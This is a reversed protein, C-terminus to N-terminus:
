LAGLVTLAVFALVAVVFLPSTALVGLRQWVTLMSRRPLSRFLDSGRVFLILLSVAGVVGIVLFVMSVYLSQTEALMGFSFYELLVSMANNAFHVAVPIWINETMVYLWGLLIGVLLAFPIQLINGHMLSFLLASIMVAFWDGYPRFARLVYGRFVMEELLAPLVAIALLNLLLSEPTNELLQPSMPRSWGQEELFYSVYTAIYNAAICGGMAGLIGFFADGAVVRNAPALPFHRRKCCIAVSISPALFNFVYIGAYLLLYGTNDLGYYVGYSREEMTVVGFLQLLNLAISFTLEFAITLMLMMGGIYAADSRLRKKEAQEPSMPPVYPQYYPQYYPPQSGPTQSPSFM